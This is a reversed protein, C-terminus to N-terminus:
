PIGLHLETTGPNAMAIGLQFEATGPDTTGPNAM